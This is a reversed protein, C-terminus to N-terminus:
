YVVPRPAGMQFDQARENALPAADMTRCLSRRPPRPRTFGYDGRHALHAPALRYPRTSSAFPPSRRSGLKPSRVHAEALADLRSAYSRDIAVRCLHVRLEGTQQPNVESTLQTLGLAPECLLAYWDPLYWDEDLPNCACVHSAAIWDPGPLIDDDDLLHDINEFVTM